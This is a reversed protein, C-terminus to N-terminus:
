YIAQRSHMHTVTFCISDGCQSLILHQQGAAACPCAYVMANWACAAILQRRLMYSSHGWGALRNECNISLAPYRRTGMISRKSSGHLVQRSVLLQALKEALLYPQSQSLSLTDDWYSLVTTALRPCSPAM